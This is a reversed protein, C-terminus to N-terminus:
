WQSTEDAAAEKSRRESAVVGNADSQNHQKAQKQKLGKRVFLHMKYYTRRLLHLSLLFVLLGPHDLSSRGQPVSLTSNLGLEVWHLHPQILLVM